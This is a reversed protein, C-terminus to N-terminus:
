SYKLYKAIEPTNEIIRIDVSIRDIPERRITALQRDRPLM